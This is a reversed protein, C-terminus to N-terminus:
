SNPHRLSASSAGAVMQRMRQSGICCRTWASIVRCAFCRLFRWGHNDSSLFLSLFYHSRRRVKALMQMLCFFDARLTHELLEATLWWLASITGETMLAASAREVAMRHDGQRRGAEGTERVSLTMLAMPVSRSRSVQRFRKKDASTMDPNLIHSCMDLQHYVASAMAKMIASEQIHGLAGTWQAFCVNVITCMANSFLPRGLEKM